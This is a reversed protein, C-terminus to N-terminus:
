PINVDIEFTVTLFNGNAFSPPLKASPQPDSM